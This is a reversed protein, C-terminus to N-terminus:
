LDEDDDLGYENAFEEDIDGEKDCSDEDDEPTSEDMECSDEIDERPSDNMNSEDDTDDIFGVAKKCNRGAAVVRGNTSPFLKGFYTPLM